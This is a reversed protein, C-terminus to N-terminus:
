PGHRGHLCAVAPAAQTRLSRFESLSPPPRGGTDTALTAATRATM